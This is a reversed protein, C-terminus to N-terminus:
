PDSARLPRMIRFGTHMKHIESVRSPIISGGTGKDEFVSVDARITRGREFFYAEDSQDPRDSAHCIEEVNGITDFLGDTNPLRDGAVKTRHQSNEFLWAYNLVASGDPSGLKSVSETSRNALQWETSSLLRFGPQSLDVAVQSIDSLNWTVPYSWNESPLENMGSLWNCYEYVMGLDTGHTQHQFPVAGPNKVGAEPGNPAQKPQGFKAVVNPNKAVFDLVEQQTLETTCVAIRDNPQTPDSLISFALGTRDIMVRGLIGDADSKARREPRGALKPDQGLRRMLLEAASFCGADPDNVIHHFAVDDLWDQVTEDVLSSAQLCFAMLV